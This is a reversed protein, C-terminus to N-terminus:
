PVSHFNGSNVPELQVGVLHAQVVADQGGHRAYVTQHMAIRTRGHAEANVTCM